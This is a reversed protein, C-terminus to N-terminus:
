CAIPPPGGEIGRGACISPKSSSTWAGPSSRTTTRRRTSIAAATISASRATTGSVVFGGFESTAWPSESRKVLRVTHTGRALGSIWHTGAAPMVLTAAVAGDVQVDYDAAPDNLVVGIGTGRFRGEFYVGPWSFAMTGRDIQVRGATHAKIRGAMHAKALGGSPAEALAGDKAEALASNPAEALASDKAEALASSSAEAPASSPTGPAAEATGALLIAVAVAAVGVLRRSTHSYM